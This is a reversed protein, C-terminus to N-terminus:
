AWECNANAICDNKNTLTVCTPDTTKAKCRKACLEDYGEALEPFDSCRQFGANRVDESFAPNEFSSRDKFTCANRCIALALSREEVSLRTIEVKKKFLKETTGTFFLVAIILVILVLAAIIIFNLTLEAGRKNFGKEILVV